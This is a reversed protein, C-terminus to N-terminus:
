KQIRSGRQDRPSQSTYLLCTEDLTARVGGESIAASILKAEQKLAALESEILQNEYQATYLFGFALMVLAGINVGLIKLTLPSIKRLTPKVPYAHKKM